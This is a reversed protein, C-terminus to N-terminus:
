VGFRLWQPGKCTYENVSLHGPTDPNPIHVICAHQLSPTYGNMHLLMGLM